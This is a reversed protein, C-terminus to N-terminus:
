GGREQRIAASANNKGKLWNSVTLELEAIEPDVASIPTASMSRLKSAQQQELHRIKWFQFAREFSNREAETIEGVQTVTVAPKVVGLESTLERIMVDAVHDPIKTAIANEDGDISRNRQNEKNMHFLAEYLEVADRQQVHRKEVYASYATQKAIVLSIDLLAKRIIDAEAANELVARSAKAHLWLRDNHAM